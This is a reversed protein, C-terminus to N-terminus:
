EILESELVQEHIRGGVMEGDLCVEALRRDEEDGVEVRFAPLGACQCFTRLLFIVDHQGVVNQARDRELGSMM